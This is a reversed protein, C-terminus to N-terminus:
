GAPEKDPIRRVPSKPRGSGVPTDVPEVDGPGQHVIRSMVLFGSPFIIAYALVYGALSVLVNWTTLSPTVSDATRLLGYVTWPQRGVETTAWGALVALFGIPAALQCLLLFPRHTFLRRGRRLVNGAVTIALMLLGLGV